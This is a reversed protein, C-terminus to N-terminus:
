HEKMALRVEAIGFSERGQQAAIMPARNLV